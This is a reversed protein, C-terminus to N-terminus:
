SLYIKCLFIGLYRSCRNLLTKDKVTRYFVARMQYGGESLHPRIQGASVVRKRGRQTILWRFASVDILKGFWSPFSFRFIYPSFFPATIVIPQGRFIVSLQWKKEFVIKKRGLDRRGQGVLNWRHLSPLPPRCVSMDRVFIRSFNRKVFLASSLNPPSFDGYIQWQIRQSSVEEERREGCVFKLFFFIDRSLSASRVFFGAKVTM